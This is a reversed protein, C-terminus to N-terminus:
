PQFHRALDLLDSRVKAERMARVKPERVFVGPVGTVEMYVSATIQTQKGGALPVLEFSGSAHGGPPGEVGRFRITRDTVNDFVITVTHGFTKSKFRVRADRPGGSEVKVSEVDTLLRPWNAYDTVAAYVQSPSAAVTLSGETIHGSKDQLVLGDAAAPTDATLTLAALAGVVYPHSTTMVM